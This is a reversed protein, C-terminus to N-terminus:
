SPSTSPSRSRDPLAAGGPGRAPAVRRPVQVDQPHPHAHRHPLPRERRPDDVAPDRQTIVGIVKRERVADNVLAVSSERAVALPLIAHPFLITDRLPLIGLETPSRPSTRGRPRRGVRLGAPARRENRRRDRRSQAENGRPDTASLTVSPIVGEPVARFGQGRARRPDPEETRSRATAACCRSRCRAAPAAELSRAARVGPVPRLDRDELRQMAEDIKELTESKMQMLAFDVEQVFEDVSQEEADRVDRADAPMTERLSRLKEHIERRRDELMGKLGPLARDIRGNKRTM